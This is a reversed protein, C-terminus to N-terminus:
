CRTAIRVSAFSNVCKYGKMPGVLDPHAQLANYLWTAGAEPAGLLFLVKYGSPLPPMGSLSPEQSAPCWIVEQHNVSGPSYLRFGLDQM